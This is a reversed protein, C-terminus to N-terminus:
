RGQGGSWPPIVLDKHLIVRLPWGPRVTITPQIDLTKQVLRDGARAGSRQASERLAEVLDGENGGFTLETGMGLLTSLGVGKLLQWSHLDIKDTLGAYGQTDTAPLNDISVSSGDPMLIRQWVVLARTQGFAIVSDYRGLLRAGQPILLTRGTPSDFAPQTVQAIVIGPLDSNLGTILSAAIVSGASLVTSSAPPRLRGADVVEDPAARELFALKAAQGEPSASSPSVAPPASATGEPIGASGPTGSPQVIVKSERAKREEEALRQREAEAADISREDVGAVQQGDQRAVSRQHALIPGGLDGPLPPGLKPVESYTRPAKALADAPTRARPEADSAAVPGSGYQAPRLGFWAVGAIATSGLLAAGIIVGRRFRIVPRPRARLSLAEPDIKKPASAQLPTAHDTM